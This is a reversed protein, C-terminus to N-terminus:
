QSSIAPRDQGHAKRVSEKHGGTSCAACISASSRAGIGPAPSRITPRRLGRPRPPSRPPSARRTSRAAKSRASPRRPAFRRRQWRASRSARASSAAAAPRFSARRADGRSGGKPKIRAIKRYRFADASSPRQCSVSLVLAGPMGTAGPSFNRSRCTARATAARCRSRRMSRSCRSRSIASRRQLSCIAASPAWTACPRAALRPRRRSPSVRARARRSRACLHRRRRDHHPFQRHRTADPRPGDGARGDFGLSRRRQAARMVLTGGGLYRADRESSLAAAAEGSTAFTKVTVPM